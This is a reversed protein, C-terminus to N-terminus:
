GTASAPRSRMRSAMSTKQPKGNTSPQGPFVSGRTPNDPQLPVSVMNWGAELTIDISQPVFVATLSVDDDMAVTIESETSTVDGTWGSFEWGSAAVATLTVDTGDEYDDSYPLTAEVADVEVIGEGDADVSLTWTIAPAQWQNVLPYNDQNQYIDDFIVYPTDWVETTGVEVAEPYRTVYDSWYNGQGVFDDWYISGNPYPVHVQTANNVFNNHYVLQGLSESYFGINCGSITNGVTYNSSSGSPGISVGWLGAGTIVNETIYNSNGYFISIGISDVEITNRYCTSSSTYSLGIGNLGNVVTNRRVTDGGAYQLGVGLRNGTMYNDSIINDWTNGELSIGCWNNM